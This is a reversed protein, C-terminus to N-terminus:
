RESRKMRFALGFCNAGCNTSVSPAAKQFYVKDFQIYAEVQERIWRLDQASVGAYTIFLVGIDVESISSFTRRIYIKWARRHSGFCLREVNLGGDRIRLVPHLSLSKVVRALSSKVQGARALADLNDVIFSTQVLERTRALQASIEDPTRGEEAMRCAELVQLGQGSSIHGSDIVTVNNFAAAAEQAAHFGSKGIKPSLAIHVIDNARALQRAFFAEHASVNPELTRVSGGTKEIYSLIGGSEVDIVDRFVGNETAVLHPIVAVEYRDLLTQPLDATSETSIAVLRKRRSTQIWAVSEELVDEEAASARVLEAPLQHQLEKELAAGEIPKILCGDFGEREYLARSEADANATLAVIKAERCQGGTQARIRRHCEVGDMKPMMHDMFIVHYPKELTMRLAEEGSSATDLRVKTARLLKSAVLLNSTNDDVVLVNAEPAEFRARYATLSSKQRTELDLTGLLEASAARQPIEIIFTSGMTYVSNVTISGGMLDVLQKVISLGLGTGEIHRNRDEDVRRFATFLFPISEKKIGIGTDAVTYIIVLEDDRRSGCQISFTVSGEVTYKVANNLVNVLVQRIRMDDGILEAPVEPGVNVKFELGKERARNWFMNALDSIMDGTHYAVPTLRMNGSELKSMDLIDNILHLLMSSAAKINAADEAVEESVDERLIMENLGIITNIPTRIEHSMSSFFRNQAESLAEIKKRQQESRSSEQQYLRVAFSVMAGVSLSIFGLAVYSEIYSGLTTNTHILTPFTYALAYCIGAVILNLFLFFLKVRGEMILGVFLASLVFWIPPGGLIGGGSFFSFPLMVFIMLASIICAGSKIRKKRISAAAVAALIVVLAILIVVDGLSAGTLINTVVIIALSVSMIAVILVFLREQVPREENYILDKLKPNRM